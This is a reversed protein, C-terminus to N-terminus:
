CKVADCGMWALWRLNLDFFGDFCFLTARRAAGIKPVTAGEFRARVGGVRPRSHAGFSRLSVILRWGCVVAGLGIVEESRNKRKESRGSESAQAAPKSCAVFCRM